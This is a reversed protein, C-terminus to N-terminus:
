AQKWSKKNRHLGLLDLSRALGYLFYLVALAPVLLPRHARRATLAAPITVLLPLPLALLLALVPQGFIAAPLFCGALLIASLFAITFLPAHAGRRGRSHNIITRYSTRNAHWLQQRFFERLTRPEGHHVVRLAPVALVTMGAAAARFVLDTDEGTPLNEDFGGIREAVTRHLLMGRTTVLRFADKEIVQTGRGAVPIKHSWHTHWAHAVWGSDPAPEVPWGVILERHRDFFPLATSLWNRAPECDGDFFALLDGRAAAIGHNRCVPISAGPLEIVKTFGAQRAREPTGDRSGGDVLITEMELGAPKEMADLAQKLRAIHAAEDLAVVIVSLVHGSANV